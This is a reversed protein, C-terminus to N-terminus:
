GLQKVSLKVGGLACQLGQSLSAVMVADDAVALSAIRHNGFGAGELGESHRIREIFVISLVLSFPFSQWLRVHITILDSKSGAICLLSRSRDYLSRFARLLLGQLGHKQLVGVLYTLPCLGFGCLVHLILPCVGM